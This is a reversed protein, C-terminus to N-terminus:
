SPGRKRKKAKSEAREREAQRQKRAQRERKPEPAPQQLGEPRPGGTLVQVIEAERLDAFPEVHVRQYQDQEAAEAQTVRGIPIGPPYNSAFRSSAWGATVLISRPKVEREGEIFDLLVEGPQGVEAEILGSPGDPVVKASISSRHDTMLRVQASTPTVETVTGVLGAPLGAESGDDIGVVVPDDVAVGASSGKDIGITSYWTSPTRLNVRATVPTYGQAPPALDFGALRDLQRSEGKERKLNAVQKRLDTLEDRLEENEGRAQFTEDFWNILDRAPKLARDAGEAIPSLVASVGRQISHLPGGSSETFHTSLLVLSGIVLAVLVARRRRVQKRYM